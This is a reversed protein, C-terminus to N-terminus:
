PGSGASVRLNTEAATGAIRHAPPDDVTGIADVFSLGLRTHFVTLGPASTDLFRTPRAAMAHGARPDV